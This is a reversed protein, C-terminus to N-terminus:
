HVASDFTREATLQRIGFEFDQIRKFRLFSFSFWELVIIVKGSSNELKEMESIEVSYQHMCPSNGRPNLCRRSSVSSQISSFTEFKTIRSYHVSRTSSVCEITHTTFAIAVNM